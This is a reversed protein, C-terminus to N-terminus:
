VNVVPMPGSWGLGRSIATSCSELMRLYTPITGRTYVSPNASLSVAYNVRGALDFVPMSLCVAQPASEEADIAWGRQRTLALEEFFASRETITRPTYSVLELRDVYRRIEEEPRWALLAKGLGTSHLSLEKGVWSKDTPTSKPSEVKDIYIAHSDELTGLHCILGSQMVLEQNPRKTVEFLSRRHLSLCGLEYLKIGLQYQRNANKFLLGCEVMVDLLNLLSSKPLELDRVLQTFSVPGTHGIHTLVRDARILSICGKNQAAM